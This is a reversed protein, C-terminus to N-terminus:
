CRSITWFGHTDIYVETHGTITDFRKNNEIHEYRPYLFYLLLGICATVVVVRMAFDTLLM